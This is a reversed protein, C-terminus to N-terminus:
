KNPFYFDKEQKSMKDKPVFKISASNICYRKGYPGDNFVHGLHVDDKNCSVETRMMGVSYDSTEKVCTTGNLPKAVKSFSPWGTGSDFKDKSSFLIEESAISKYIGEEKNDHYANRFPPETGHQYAVRYQMSTLKDKYQAAYPSTAAQNGM